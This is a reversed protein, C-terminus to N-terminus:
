DSDYTNTETQVFRFSRVHHVLTKAETGGLGLDRSSATFRKSMAYPHDNNFDEHEYAVVDFDSANQKFLLTEYFADQYREDVSAVSKNFCAGDDRLMTDALWCVRGTREVYLEQVVSDYQTDNVSYSFSEVRQDYPPVTVRVNVVLPTENDDEEEDRRRLFRISGITPPANIRLVSACEPERAGLCVREGKFFPKEYFCVGRSTTSNSPWLPLPSHSSSSFSSTWLSASVSSPSSFMALAVSAVMVNRM